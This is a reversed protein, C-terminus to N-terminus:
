HVAAPITLGMNVQPISPQRLSVMQGTQGSQRIQNIAQDITANLERGYTSTFSQCTIVICGVFKSGSSTCNKDFPCPDTENKEGDGDCDGNPGKDACKKNQRDAEWNQFLAALWDFASEIYGWVGFVNVGSPTPGTMGTATGMIAQVGILNAIDQIPIRLYNGLQNATLILGYDTHGRIVQDLAQLGGRTPQLAAILAARVPPLAYISSVDIVSVWYGNVFALPPTASAQRQLDAQVAARVAPQVLVVRYANMVQQSAMRAPSMVPPRVQLPPVGREEISSQNGSEEAFAFGVFLFLALVFYGRVAMTTTWGMQCREKQEDNTIM